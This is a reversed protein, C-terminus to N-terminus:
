SPLGFAPTTLFWVIMLVIICVFAPALYWLSLEDWNVLRKDESLWEVVGVAFIVGALGVLDGALVDSPYHLGLYVRSMDVLGILVVTGLVVLIRIKRSRVRRLILYALFGYFAVVTTAHGSPFSFTDENIAGFSPRGRHFIFKGLYTIGESLVLSFWVGAALWGQRKWWFIVTLVVAASVVIGAEALLTIGYFFTLGSVTRRARLFNVVHVDVAVLTGGALYEQIIWLLAVAVILFAVVAAKFRKALTSNKSDPIKEFM